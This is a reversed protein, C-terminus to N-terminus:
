PTQETYSLRHLHRHRRQAAEERFKNLINANKIAEDGHLQEFVYSKLKEREEGFPFYISIPTNVDRNAIIESAYGRNNFM